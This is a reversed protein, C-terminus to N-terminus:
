IIEEIKINYGEKIFPKIVRQLEKVDVTRVLIPINNSYIVLKGKM